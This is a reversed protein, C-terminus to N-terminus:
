LHLNKDTRYVFVNVLPSLEKEMPLDLGLVFYSVETTVRVDFFLKMWKTVYSCILTVCLCVCLGYSLWPLNFVKAVQLGYKQGFHM